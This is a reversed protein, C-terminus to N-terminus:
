MNRLTMATDVAAISTERVKLTAGAVAATFFPVGHAFAPAVVFAPPDVKRQVFYANTFFEFSV